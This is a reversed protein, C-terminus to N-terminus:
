LVPLLARIEGLGPVRVPAGTLLGEAGSQGEGESGGDDAV